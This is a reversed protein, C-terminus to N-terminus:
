RAPAPAFLPAPDIYIRYDSVREGLLALVNVFPLTVTSGDLRTYTVRGECISHHPVSWTAVVEHRMGRVAAFFGEVAATIAARGTVRPQSGFRFSAGDHLHAMFGATDKGDVCALLGQVWDRSGASRPDTSTM